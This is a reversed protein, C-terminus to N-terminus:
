TLGEIACILPSGTPTFDKKRADYFHHMQRFTITNVQIIQVVFSIEVAPEARIDAMVFATM